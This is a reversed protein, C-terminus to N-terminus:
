ADSSPSLGLAELEAAERDLRAQEVVNGVAIAVGIGWGVWALVLRWDRPGRMSQRIVPVAGAAAGLLGTSFIYRRM